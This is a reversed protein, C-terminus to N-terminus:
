EEPALIRAPAGTSTTLPSRTPSCETLHGRELHLRRGAVAAIGADHTVLLLTTGLQRNIQQLLAVIQESSADDLDGTPEDAVVLTPDAVVARAIGVRQEQGGSLQRPLHGARDALSVADLAIMVRKRREARSLPLLL